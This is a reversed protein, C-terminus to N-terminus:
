WFYMKKWWAHLCVKKKEQTFNYVIKTLDVVKEKFSSNEEILSHYSVMKKKEFDKQTEFTKKVENKLLPISRKSFQPNWPSPKLALNEFEEIIEDYSTSLNDYSYNEIPNVEDEIAM